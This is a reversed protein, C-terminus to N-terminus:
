MCIYTGIDIEEIEANGNDWFNCSQQSVDKSVTLLYRCSCAHIKKVVEQVYCYLYNYRSLNLDLAFTFIFINFICIIACM